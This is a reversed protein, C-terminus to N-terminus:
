DAPCLGYYVKDHNTAVVKQSVKFALEYEDRNSEQRPISDQDHYRNLKSGDHM